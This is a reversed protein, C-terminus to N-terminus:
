QAPKPAQTPAQAPAQAANKQAESFKKTYEDFKKQLEEIRAQHQEAEKKAAEVKEKDKNTKAEQEAAEKLKREKDMYKAVVIRKNLYPTPLEPKIASVKDYYEIAKDLHAPIAEAKMDRAGGRGSYIEGLWSMAVDDKPDYKLAENFYKEAKDADNKQLYASALNRCVEAKQAADPKFDITKLIATEAEAMNGDQMHAYAKKEWVKEQKPNAQLSLGYEDAAQKWEAKTIHQDGAQRHAVAADSEEKCATTGSLALAGLVLVVRGLSKM